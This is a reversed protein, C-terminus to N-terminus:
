GSSGLHRNAFATDQADATERIDFGPAAVILAIVEGVLYQRRTKDVAMAMQDFDFELAIGVGPDIGALSGVVRDMFAQVADVRYVVARLACLFFEAVGPAMPDGTPGIGDVETASAHILLSRSLNEAVRNTATTREM